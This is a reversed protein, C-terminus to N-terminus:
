SYFLWFSILNSNTDVHSAQKVFSVMLNTKHKTHGTSSGFM